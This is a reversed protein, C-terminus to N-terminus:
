LPAWLCRYQDLFAKKSCVPCDGFRIPRRPQNRVMFRGLLTNWYYSDLVAEPFLEEKIVEGAILVGALVPAFPIPIEDDADPLRMKGCQQAEWDGFHQGVEPCSVDDGVSQLRPAIAAVDDAVFVENDRIKRYWVETSLGLASALQLAKVREPDEREQSLRCALCPSRGFAVRWVFFEGTETAGADWVVEPTEFQISHRAARSHVAAAIRSRRM